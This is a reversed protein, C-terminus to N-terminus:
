TTANEKTPIFHTMMSSWDMAVMIVDFGRLPPLSVMFDMSVNEWSGELILLPRLLGIQKKNFTWNQQCTLCTKMYEKTDNKLNLWYYTKKLFTISNKAGDHGALPGHHCEKLLVDRLKGKLDYLRNQKFWLLGDWMHFHSMIGKRINQKIEKAFEDHRSV